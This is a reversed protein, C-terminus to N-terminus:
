RGDPSERCKARPQLSRRGRRQGPRAGAAKAHRTRAARGDAFRDYLALRRPGRRGGPGTRSGRGRRDGAPSHRATPPGGGSRVRGAHDGESSKKEKSGGQALALILAAVGGLVVFSQGVNDGFRGIERDREDQPERPGLYFAM